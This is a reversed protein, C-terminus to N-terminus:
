WYNQAVIGSRQHRKDYGCVMDLVPAMSGQLGAKVDLLHCYLTADSVRIPTKGGCCLHNKAGVPLHETM